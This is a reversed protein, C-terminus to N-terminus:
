AEDIQGGKHRKVSTKSHKSSNREKERRIIEMLSLPVTTEHLCVGGGNAYREGPVFYPLWEVLENIPFLTCCPCETDAQEIRIEGRKEM